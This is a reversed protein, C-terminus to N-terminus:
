QKTAIGIPTKIFPVYFATLELNQRKGSNSLIKGCKGSKKSLSEGIELKIFYMGLDMCQSRKVVHAM